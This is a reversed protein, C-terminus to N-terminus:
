TAEAPNDRMGVAQELYIGATRRQEDTSDRCLIVDSALDAAHHAHQYRRQPDGQAQVAAHLSTRIQALLEASGRRSAEHNPAGSDDPACPLEAM